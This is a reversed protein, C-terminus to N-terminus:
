KEDLAQHLERIVAEASQPKLEGRHFADLSKQADKAIERRRAEVHRRRLIEVLMEQQEISLEMAVDIAYDLTTTM